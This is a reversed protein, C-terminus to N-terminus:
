EGQVEFAQAQIASALDDDHFTYLVQISSQSGAYEELALYHKNGGAWWLYGDLLSGPIECLMDQVTVGYEREMVEFPVGWNTEIEVPDKLAGSKIADQIVQLM